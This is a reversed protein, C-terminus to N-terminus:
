EFLAFSTGLVNPACIVLVDVPALTESEKVLVAPPPDFPVLSFFRPTVKRVLWGQHGM